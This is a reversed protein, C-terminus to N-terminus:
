SLDMVIQDVIGNLEADLDVSLFWFLEGYVMIYNWGKRKKM